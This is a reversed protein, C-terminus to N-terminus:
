FLFFLLYILVFSYTVYTQCVSKRRGGPSEALASQVSALSKTLGSGLYTNSMTRTPDDIICQFVGILNKIDGIQVDSLAKDIWDEPV